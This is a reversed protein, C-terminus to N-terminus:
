TYMVNADVDKGGIMDESIRHVADVFWKVHEPDADPYIGHGLNAIYRRTGFKLLMEKVIAELDEKACYLACPDLNGQLTTTLFDRAIEPDLLWDISVVNFGLKNITPLSNNCGKAYLAIPIHDGVADHVRKCIDSLYPAVVYNFMQPTLHGANSEFVQVFNAGARVQEILHDVVADSLIKLLAQSKTKDEYMWRKSKSCTKSTMGDVMYSMLTWPGGAFGILPIRNKLLKKTEKIGEYVYDLKSVSFPALEEVDSKSVLPKEFTPGVGPKMVCTMGLAQPIVLIDSFIIAADLDFREVPQVTLQASLKPNQCIEFFDHQSFVEKFEPLYRGAQRM